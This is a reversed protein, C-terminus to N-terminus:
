TVARKRARYRQASLRAIEKGRGFERARVARVYGTSCGLRQAIESTKLGMFLYPIVDYKTTM